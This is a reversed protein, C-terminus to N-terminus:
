RVPSGCNEALVRLLAEVDDRGKVVHHDFGAAKSRQRAMDDGWATYAILLVREGFATRIKTAAGYGNLHPMGLDLIVVSPRNALAVEVAKMGDYAVLAHYGELELCLALSNACDPNDDALLVVTKALRPLPM